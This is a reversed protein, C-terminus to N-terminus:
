PLAAMRLKLGDNYISLDQRANDSHVRRTSKSFVADVHEAVVVPQDQFVTAKTQTEGVPLEAVRRAFGHATVSQSRDLNVQPMIVLSPADSSQFKTSNWIIWDQGDTIGDANWDAWSWKGTSTFRHVSWRIFDSGDVVGDLNADSLLYPNGSSLNMAGAAALWQDRDELDVLGDSTLDFLPLNTGAVIEMILADIDDIDCTSDGSFDCAPRPFPKQVEFAGMDIRATMNGNGDRVRSYPMGRQDFEPVDGVGAIATPDGADIAPSAALLAMTQTPGANDALPGLLPDIVGASAPDGVLNGNADPTQAAVLGSGFKNGILNFKLIVPGSTGAINLDPAYTSATNGAVITSAITTTGGGPFSQSYIGGGHAASNGSLTSNQITTTFSSGIGGMSSFIGGGSYTASNGFLTNNLIRTTALFPNGVPDQTLSWIGGGHAASNGSLVSNQITTTSHPNTVSWIGGGNGSASNSSITSYEITTTGGNTRSLIGGGSESASNGSIASNRITKMSYNDFYIGGGGGASNGSITSSEITMEGSFYGAFIGGGNSASNGTITGNLITTTGSRSVIGGGRWGASNMSIISYDITTTGHAYIGGGSDASNATITSTQITTTGGCSIGGGQAASNGSLTSNEIMTTGSNNSNIAGGSSASNGTVVADRLTLNERSYIAGGRGNASSANGGTLTLGVIEVAIHNSSNANDINFIRSLHNADITLNAAGTGTITLADIIPLETGALMITQPTAFLGTNDLGITDPGVTNNAATIAERLSIHGDTGKNALLDAISSTDGDNSLDTATDVTVSALLWRNELLECRLPRRQRQHGRANLRRITRFQRGRSAVLDRHPLM